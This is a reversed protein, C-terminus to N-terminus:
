EDKEDDNFDVDDFSENKGANMLNEFTGPAVNITEGKLVTVDAVKGEHSYLPITEIESEELKPMGNEERAKNLAETYSYGQKAYYEAAVQVKEFVSVFREDNQGETQNSERYDYFPEIERVEDDIIVFPQEGLQEKYIRTLEKSRKYDIIGRVRIVLLNKTDM